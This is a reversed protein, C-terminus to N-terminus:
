ALGAVKRLQLVTADIATTTKGLAEHDQVRFRCITCRGAKDPGCPTDGGRPCGQRHEVSDDRHLETATTDIDKTVDLDEPLSGHTKLCDLEVPFLETMKRVRSKVKAHVKANVHNAHQSVGVRTPAAHRLQHM